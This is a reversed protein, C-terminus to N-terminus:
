LRASFFCLSFIAGSIRRNVSSNSFYLSPTRQYQFKQKRCGQQLIIKEPKCIIADYNTFYNYPTSLGRQTFPAPQSASQPISVGETVAEGHWRGRTLPPKATRQLFPSLYIFAVPMTRLTSSKPLITMGFSILLVKRILSPSGNCIVNVGNLRNTRPIILRDLRRPQFYYMGVFRVAKM